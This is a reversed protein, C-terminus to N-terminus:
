EIVVRGHEDDVSLDPGGRWPGRARGRRAGAGSVRARACVMTFRYRRPHNTISKMEESGASLMTHAMPSAIKVAMYSLDVGLNKADM